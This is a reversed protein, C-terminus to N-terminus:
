GHNIGKYKEIFKSEKAMEIVEKDTYAKKLRPLIGYLDELSYKASTLFVTGQHDINYVVVDGYKVALTDRVFAPLTVQGKSSIRSVYLNKVKRM